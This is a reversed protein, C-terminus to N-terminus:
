AEGLRAGDWERAVTVLTVDDAASFAGVYDKVLSPDAVLEEAEAFVTVNKVDDFFPPPATAPIGAVAHLVRFADDNAPDAALARAATFAAPVPASDAVAAAHEALRRAVARGADGVDVLTELPRGHAVLEGLTRRLREAGALLEPLTVAGPRVNGLMYRRFPLEAQVRDRLKEPDALGFAFNSAHQRYRYVVEDIYDVRAVSTLAWAFWWDEWAVEPPMPFMVPRLEARMTMAGGNVVNENLLRGAIQGSPPDLGAIMRPQLVRGRQDIAEMDGYVFGVDPNEQLHAVVRDLRGPPWADDSSCPVMVDGKLMGIVRTVAANIGQNEQRVYTIHDLYPKVREPTADTSGDDLLVYEFRNSPWGQSLVSEIAEAVFDEHNYALGYASVFPTAPLPGLM